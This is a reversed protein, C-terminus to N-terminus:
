LTTNRSYEVALRLNENFCDLELPKKTTNNFMYSPRQNPFPVRFHDELIQRCITEGKSGSKKTKTSPKYYYSSSYSGKNKM